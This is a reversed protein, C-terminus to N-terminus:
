VLPQLIQDFKWIYKKFLEFSCECFAVSIFANSLNQFYRLNQYFNQIEDEFFLNQTNTGMYPLQNERCSSGDHKDFM